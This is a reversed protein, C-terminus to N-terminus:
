RRDAPERNATWQNILLSLQVTKPLFGKVAGLTPGTVVALVPARAARDLSNLVQDIRAEIAGASPKGGIWVSTATVVHKGKDSTAEIIRWTPARGDNSTRVGETQHIIDWGPPTEIARLSLFLDRVNIRGPYVYLTIVFSVGDCNYATSFSIERGSKTIPPASVTESTPLVACGILAPMAFPIRDATINGMDDLRNAALRSASASVLVILMVISLSMATLTNSGRQQMVPTFTPALRDQRFPLGILFIVAGVILYFLWGWLVHGTQVAQANGIFHAILITGLVRFDNAIVAVALFSVVLILRRLSSVYILCAYFVAFAASAVLFRLGSCAQHVLFSGEPIEITVGNVFNPIGLLDLGIKTFRVALHQLPPVLFEGSPVLFFLYLLPAALVQWTRWGLVSAFMIQVIALVVLQRGEMVGLRDVAFWVAAAPIAFLAIFPSPSLATAMVQDRRVWALYAAVPIVLFCHNYADSNNWVYIATEVESQFLLGIIGLGITLAISAAIWASRQPVTDPVAIFQPTSM